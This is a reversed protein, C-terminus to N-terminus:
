GLIIETWEGDSHTFATKFVKGLGVRRHIGEQEHYEILLVFYLDWESEVREKPIYYSWDPFEVETFMKADSITIFSFKTGDDLHSDLWEETLVISGCKDGYQDAIHCCRLGEGLGIEPPCPRTSRILHLTTM